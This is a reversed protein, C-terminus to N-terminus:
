RGRTPVTRKRRLLQRQGGDRRNSEGGDLDGQSSDDAFSSHTPSSCFTTQRHIQHPLNSSTKTKTSLQKM